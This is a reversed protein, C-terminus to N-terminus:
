RRRSASSSGVASCRNCRHRSSPQPGHNISALTAQLDPDVGVRGGPIHLVQDKPCGLPQGDFGDENGVLSQLCRRAIREHMGDPHISAGVDRVLIDGMMGAGAIEDDGLIHRQGGQEHGFCHRHEIRAALLM